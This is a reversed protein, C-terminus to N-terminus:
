KVLRLPCYSQPRDISGQWDAWGIASAAPPSQGEDRDMVRIAFRMQSGPAPRAPSLASWPIAAAYVTRRGERRASVLAGPVSGAVPGRPGALRVLAPGGKMLAMGFCHIQPTSGATRLGGADLAFLVSDGTRIQDPGTPAVHARDSVACGVYLFREDWTLYGIASLDSAGRWPRGGMQEARGMGLPECDPWTQPDSQLSPTLSAFKCAMPVGVLVDVHGIIQGESMVDFPAHYVGADRSPARVPISSLTTRGASATFGAVPAGTRDEARRVTLMTPHSSRNAISIRALGGADADKLDVRPTVVSIGISPELVIAVSAHADRLTVTAYVVDRAATQPLFLRLQVARPKGPFLTGLSIHSASRPALYAPDATLRIDGPVGAASANRVNLEVEWEDGGLYTSRASEATLMVPSAHRPEVTLMLVGSGDLVVPIELESAGWSACDSVAAPRLANGARWGAEPRYLSVRAGSAFAAGFGHLRVLGREGAPAPRQTWVIARVSGDGARTAVCHLPSGAQVTHLRIGSMRNVFGLADAAPTAEGDAGFAVNLPVLLGGLPNPQDPPAAAAAGLAAAVYSAPSDAVGPRLHLWLTTGALQASDALVRRAVRVSPAASDPPCSWAISDPASGATSLASRTAGSVGDLLLGIPASPQARRAGSQFRSWREADFGSEADLDWRVIGYQDAASYRQLIADLAPQWGATTRDPMQSVALASEVGESAAAALLLNRSAHNAEGSAPWWVISAGRAKLGSMAASWAAGGMSDGREMTVGRWVHPLPADPDAYVEM